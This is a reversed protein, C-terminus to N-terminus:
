ENHFTDFQKSNKSNCSNKRGETGIRLLVVVAVGVTGDGTSRIQGVASEVVREDAKARTDVGDGLALVAESLQAKGRLDIEPLPEGGGDTGTDAPVAVIVRGLATRQVLRREVIEM